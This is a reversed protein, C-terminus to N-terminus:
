DDNTPSQHHLRATLALAVGALLIASSLAQLATIPESFLWWALAAAFVPELLTATGVAAATFHLLSWNLATHGILQPVLAMGLISGWGPLGQPLNRGSELLLAAPWLSLAATSYTWTVLRASGIRTQLAQAILLYGAITAAGALAMLDGLWAPGILSTATENRWTVGAVGAGAILLGWWFRAPIRQKLLLVGILGAFVPSTCVLLTSRAVPIRQLSAFWTAFHLGLLLGAFLLLTSDRYTPHTVHSARRLGTLAVLVGGALTLRWASLSIPGLGDELGARALIAASGVALQAGILVAYHLTTVAASEPAKSTM